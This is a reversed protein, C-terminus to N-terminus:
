SCPKGGYGQNWLRKEGIFIGIEASRNRWDIKMLSINGIPQWGEPTDIEIVLPHEEIPEELMKEFWVEEEARSLVERPSLHAYVEPDNLWPVFRAIDEREASRLRIRKGIIM